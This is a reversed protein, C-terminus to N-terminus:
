VSLIKSYDKPRDKFDNLVVGDYEVWCHASFPSTRVSFELTSSINLLSLYRLLVLSSLLCRDYTTFLFPTITHFAEAHELVLARPVPAAQSARRKWRSVAAILADIDSAHSRWLLWAATLARAFRLTDKPSGSQPTESGVDFVSAQPHPLHCGAIAKGLNSDAVLIGKSLLSGAFRSAEDSPQEGGRTSLLESFLRSQEVTFSFYRNRKADLFIYDGDGDGDGDRFYISPNLYFTPQM